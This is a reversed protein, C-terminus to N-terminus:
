KYKESLFDYYEEKENFNKPLNIIGTLEEVLASTTTKLQTKQVVFNFYNEVMKSLSVQHQKAYSKIEEITKQDVSLTLKTNM